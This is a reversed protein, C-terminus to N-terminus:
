NFVQIFTELGNSIVGPSPKALTTVDATKSKLVLRKLEPSLKSVDKDPLTKPIIAKDLRPNGPVQSFSPTLACLLLGASCTYNLLLKTMSLSKRKILFSVFSPYRLKEYGLTRYNM